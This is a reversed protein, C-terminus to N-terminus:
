EAYEAGCDPSEWVTVSKLTALAQVLSGKGTFADWFRKYLYEALFEATVNPEKLTENLQYHDLMGNIINGMVYKINAFDSLMNKADLVKGEFVAEVTWRHGHERSCKGQYDRIFHAADFHMRVKLKYM